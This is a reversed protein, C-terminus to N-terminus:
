LIEINESKIGKMKAKTTQEMMEAESILVPTGTTTNEQPFITRLDVQRDEPLSELLTELIGRIYDLRPTEKALEDILKQIIKRNM